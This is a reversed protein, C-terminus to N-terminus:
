MGRPVSVHGSYTGGVQAPLPEGLLCPFLQEAHFSETRAPDLRIGPIAGSMLHESM